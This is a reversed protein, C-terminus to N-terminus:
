VLVMDGSLRGTFSIQVQAGKDVSIPEGTIVVNSVGSTNAGTTMGPHLYGTTQCPEYYSTEDIYLRLNTLETRADFAETLAIQGTTDDPKYHGNFSITGGDQIGFVFKTAHDGFETDDIEAITKGDQSWNGIGLINDTGLAVKCDIGPRSTSM